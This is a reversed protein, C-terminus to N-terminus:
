RVLEIWENEVLDIWMAPRIGFFSQSAVDSGIYGIGGFHGIYAARDQDEGPSRLLCYCTGDDDTDVGQAKAYATPTVESAFIFYESAESLGLLFVKDQTANGAETEYATNDDATVTVTPIKSIEEGSFSNEM